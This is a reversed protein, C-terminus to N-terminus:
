LQRESSVLQFHHQVTTLKRRKEAGKWFEVAHRKYEIDVDKDRQSCVGTYSEETWDEDTDDVVVPEAECEKFQDLFDLSAVESIEIM